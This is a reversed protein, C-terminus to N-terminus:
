AVRLKLEINHLQLALEDLKLLLGRIQEAGASNSAVLRQRLLDAQLVQSSIAITQDFYERIQGGNVGGAAREAFISLLSSLFAILALILKLVPQDFNLVTALTAILGASSVASVVSGATKWTVSRNLRRSLQTIMGDARTRLAQTGISALQIEADIPAQQDAADSPGLDRDRRLMAKAEPYASGLQQLAVADHHILFEVLNRPNM